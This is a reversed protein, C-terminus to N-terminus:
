IVNKDLINLIQELQEISMGPNAYSNFKRKVINYLEQSKRRNLIDDINRYLKYDASGYEWKQLYDNEIVFKEEWSKGLKVTIYKRGVSTVIGNYTWKDINSLSLDKGRAANSREEIAVVVEDGKKFM